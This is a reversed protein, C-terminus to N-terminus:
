AIQFITSTKGCGSAGLLCISHLGKKLTDLTEELASNKYSVPFGEPLTMDVYGDRLTPFAIKFFNPSSKMNAPEITQPSISPRKNDLECWTKHLIRFSLNKQLSSVVSKCKDEHLHSKLAQTI